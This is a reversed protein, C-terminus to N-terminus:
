RGLFFLGALPAVLWWFFATNSAFFARTAASFTYINEVPLVHMSIALIFGAILVSMVAESIFGGSHAAMFYSLGSFIVFGFFAFLAYLGIKFYPNDGLVDMYPFAAYLALAAYLSAILPALRDRGFYLAFFLVLFAVIIFSVFDGVIAGFQLSISHFASQVNPVVDTTTGM